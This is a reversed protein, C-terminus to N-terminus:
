AASARESEVSVGAPRVEQVGDHQEVLLAEVSGGPALLLDRLEGLRRGERVVNGGLLDRLSRSRDRYFEVDELLMLASPMDIADERLDAAAFVLFRLSEDGCHVVFGLARWEAADLLLDVSRGLRIRHLEVPLQLLEAASRAGM